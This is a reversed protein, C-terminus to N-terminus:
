KTEDPLLPRLLFTYFKSGSKLTMGLFGGEIGTLGLQAVEDPTMTRKLLFENAGGTFDAPAITTWPWAVPENFPQDLPMLIGRYATPVYLDSNGAMTGFGQLRDNLAVLAAIVPGGQPQMEISLPTASVAKTAGNVNITFTTTPLDAGQGMYNAAADALGGRTLADELLSQIASETLRVSRLATRPSVNGVPEPVPANVDRWVVRGDGYLTFIPTDTAISEVMMGGGSELRLVVDTAGTKHQIGAMATPSPNSSPGGTAGPSAPPSSPTVSPSCAAVVALLIAPAAVRSVRASLLTSANTM